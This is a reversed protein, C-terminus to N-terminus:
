SAGLSPSSFWFLMTEHMSAHFLVTQYFIILCCQKIVFRYEKSQQKHASMYYVLPEISIFCCEISVINIWESWVMFCYQKVFFAIDWARSLTAALYNHWSAHFLITQTDMITFQAQPAYKHLTCFLITKLHVWTDFLISESRRNPTIAYRLMAYCLMAYCLMAYCLMAYCPM